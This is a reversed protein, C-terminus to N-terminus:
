RPLVSEILRQAFRAANFARDEDAVPQEVGFQTAPRMGDEVLPLASMGQCAGNEKVLEAFQAVAQGFSHSVLGGAEFEDDIGDDQPVGDIEAASDIINPALAEINWGLQKGLDCRKWPRM